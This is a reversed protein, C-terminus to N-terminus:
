LIPCSLTVLKQKRPLRRAKVFPRDWKQWDLSRSHAPCAEVPWPVSPLIMSGYNKALLLNRCHCLATAITPPPLMRPQDGNNDATTKNNSNPADETPPPRVIHTTSRGVNTRLFVRQITRAAAEHQQLHQFFHHHVLEM